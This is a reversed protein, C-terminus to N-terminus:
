WQALAPESPPPGWRLAGASVSDWSRELLARRNDDWLPRATANSPGAQDAGSAQLAMAYAKRLVACPRHPIRRQVM